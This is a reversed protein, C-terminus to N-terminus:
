NNNLPAFSPFDFYKLISFETLLTPTRINQRFLNLCHNLKAKLYDRYQELTLTQSALRNEWRQMEHQIQKEEKLLAERRNEGESRNIREKIQYLKWSSIQEDDDGDTSRREAEMKRASHLFLTCRTGRELKRKKNTVNTRKGKKEELLNRTTQLM